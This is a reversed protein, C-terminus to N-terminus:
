AAVKWGGEDQQAMIRTEGDALDSDSLREIM